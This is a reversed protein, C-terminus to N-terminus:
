QGNAENEKERIRSSPNKPPDIIKLMVKVDEELKSVREQLKGLKDYIGYVLAMLAVILSVTVPDM